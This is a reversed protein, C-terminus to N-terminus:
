ATTSMENAMTVQITDPFHDKLAEIHTVMFIQDFMTRLVGVVNLMVQLSEQDLESFVEDLFISRLQIGNRAAMMHALALRVSFNIIAKQGGSFSEYDRESGDPKRIIVSLTEREEGTQTYGTTSFVVQFDTGFQALLQNAYGMITGLVNEIVMAPIKTAFAKVVEKAVDLERGRTAVTAQAQTYLSEVRQWTDIRTNAETRQAEATRIKGEITAVLGNALDIQQQTVEVDVKALREALNEIRVHAAGAQDRAASLTDRLLPRTDQPMIIRQGRHEALSDLCAKHDQARKFLDGLRMGEAQVHAVLDEAPQVLEGKVQQSISQHCTPCQPELAELKRLDLMAAVIAGNSKAVEDRIADYDLPDAQADREFLKMQEEWVAYQEALTQFQHDLCELEQRARDGGQVYRKRLRVFEDHETQLDNAHQLLVRAQRYEECQAKAAALQETLTELTLGLGTVEVRLEEIDTDGLQGQYAAMEGQAQQVAAMAQRARERAAEAAIGLQDNVILTALYRRRNAPTASMFEDGKGQRFFAVACFIDDDIGLWEQVIANAARVGGHTNQLEDDVWFKLRTTAGRNKKREIKAKHGKHWFTLACAMDEAGDQIVADENKDRVKGYLIYRIAEIITSKGSGTRGLIGVVQRQSLDITLSQYSRYHTLQLEGFKL